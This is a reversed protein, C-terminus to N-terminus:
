GPTQDDLHNRARQLAASYEDPTLEAESRALGMIFADGMAQNDGNLFGETLDALLDIDATEFAHQTLAIIFPDAERQRRQVESGPKNVESM